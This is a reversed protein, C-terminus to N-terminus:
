NNLEKYWINKKSVQVEGLTEEIAKKIPPHHWDHGSILKKTKPMWLKIDQLVKNYRHDGDIFVMDFKESKHFIAM